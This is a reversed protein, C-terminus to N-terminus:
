YLDINVIYKGDETELEFQMWEITEANCVAQLDDQASQNLKDERLDAKIVLKKILHKVSVNNDAKIKRIINLIRVCNDGMEESYKDYILEEKSPWNSKNHVSNYSYLLHYIEETIYPLFPAFLRLIINLVYALSQKASLNAESNVKDGYARKKALELYNDCFDKWFF